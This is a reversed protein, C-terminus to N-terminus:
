TSPWFQVIRRCLHGFLFTLVQTDTTKKSRPTRACTKRRGAAVVRLYKAKSCTCYHYCHPLQSYFRRWTTELFAGQRCGCYTLVGFVLAVASVVLLDVYYVLYNTVSSLYESLVDAQWKLNHSINTFCSHLIEVTYVDCTGGLLLVTRHKCIKSVHACLSCNLDM